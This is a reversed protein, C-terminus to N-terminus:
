ESSPPAVQYSVSAAMWSSPLVLWANQPSQCGIGGISRCLM